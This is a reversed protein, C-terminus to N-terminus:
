PNSRTERTASPPELTPTGRAGRPPMPAAIAAPAPTSGGFVRDFEEDLKEPPMADIERRRTATEAQIRLIETKTAAIQNDLAVRAATAEEDAIESKQRLEALLKENKQLQDRLVDLQKRMADIRRQRFIVIGVLGLLSGVVVPIGKAPLVGIRNAVFVVVAIGVLIVAVLLDTQLLINPLLLSLLM